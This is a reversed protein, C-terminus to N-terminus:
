MKQCHITALDLGWGDADDNKGVLKFTLSGAGEEVDVIGLVLKDQRVREKAYMDMPEGAPVENRLLQVQAQQPGQIVDVSIQYKGAEPFECELTVFPVGFWDRPSTALMRLFSAKKGSVEEDMKTMTAGRFTVAKIPVSWAPTFVLQKLDVVTRDEVPPLATDCTPADQLYIFTVGAYDTPLANGTPAHEITQLISKQFTLRSGM